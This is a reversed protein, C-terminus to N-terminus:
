LVEERCMIKLLVTGQAGGNTLSVKTEGAPLKCGLHSFPEGAAVIFIVGNCAVKLVGDAIFVPVIEHGYPNTVLADTVLNPPAEVEAIPKPVNAIMFPYAAFKVTLTTKDMGEDDETTMDEYTARFYYDPIFPDHLEAEQVSAVWSAFATKLEELREPTEATMEFVYELEREEWYVEGNIASFDYTINSFPVTEKVVKKKPMKIKRSAVSAGFDDFSAKEGIILQDMKMPAGSGGWVGYGKGGSQM